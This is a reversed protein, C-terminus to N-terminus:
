DPDNETVQLEGIQNSKRRNLVWNFILVGFVLGTQVFLLIHSIDPWCLCRYHLIINQLLM